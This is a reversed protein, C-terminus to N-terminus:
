GCEKTKGSPRTRTELWSSWAILLRTRSRLAWVQFVTSELTKSPWLAAIYRGPLTMLAPVAVASLGPNGEAAVAYTSSMVWAEGAQCVAPVIANGLDKRFKVIKGSPCTRAVPPPVVVSGAFKEVATYSASIQDGVVFVHVVIARM